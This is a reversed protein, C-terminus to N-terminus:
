GNALFLFGTGGPVPLEADWKESVALLRYRRYLHFRLCNGNKDQEETEPRGDNRSIKARSM